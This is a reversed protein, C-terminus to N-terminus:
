EGNQDGKRVIESIDAISLFLDSIGKLLALRNNRLGADDTMVLVKDFFGDVTVRIGAILKLATGYDKQEVCDKVRPRLNECASHLEQEEAEVLKSVELPTIEGEFKNLINKTRKFAVALAEFDPEGKIRAM